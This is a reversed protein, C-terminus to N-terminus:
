EALLRCLSPLLVSVLRSESGTQESTPRGRGGHTLGNADVEAPEFHRPSGARSLLPSAADNM